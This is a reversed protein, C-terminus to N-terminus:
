LQKSKTESYSNKITVPIQQGDIDVLVNEETNAHVTPRLGQLNFTVSGFTDDFTAIIIKGAERLAEDKTM